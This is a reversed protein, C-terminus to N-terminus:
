AVPDPENEAMQVAETAPLVPVDEAMEFAPAPLASEESPEVVQAETNAETDDATPTEISQNM